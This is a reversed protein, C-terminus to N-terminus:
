NVLRKEVALAVAEVRSTVGLKAFIRSVHFKTTSLSITLAEAIEANNSGNVLLRLVERERPTLGFDRRPTEQPPNLLAHVVEPSFVSSGTYASRITHALEDISATKLVYGIAGAQLMAHVAEDDQFSSLALIKIDPFRAHIAQTAEIGNMGPMIVDMLVIDPHCEMCLQLAERGNSGHAVLDLDEFTALAAEINMHVKTHDDIVAIRIHDTM